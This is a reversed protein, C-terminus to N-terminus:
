FIIQFPKKRNRAEALPVLGAPVKVLGKGLGAPYLQGKGLWFQGLYDDIKSNEVIRVLFM